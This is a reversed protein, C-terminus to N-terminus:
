KTAGTTSSKTTSPTAAPASTTPTPSSSTPSTPSPTPSAPAPAASGSSSSSGGSSSDGADDLVERLEEDLIQEERARESQLNRVRDLEEERVEWAQETIGVDARLVIGLLKDRVITFNRQAVHGVLDRAEGDYATLTTKYTAVKSAEADIKGRLDGVKLNVSSELQSFIQILRDETSRAQALIPIVHQAYARAGEGGQGESALQTERDLLDRFQARAVADNQYRADGLGVQARGIEIQQRLETAQDQALKLDHENADIETQFEQVAAPSRAVGRQADERLMRRLGNTVAHLQDIELQRQSLSQSVANWQKTGDYDRQAFDASTVPVAGVTAMLARRQTRVTEMEGSVSSSEESDLGQAIQVRARAVQNILGLARQEGALLEPFARVRNASTAVSTLKSILIESLKILKKCQNVDSIVAFAMPGDEAERAWRIAIAPLTDSTDLADMDQQSLKDYYTAVDKTSSLFNDVKVRMPDFQDRTQTYLQLAKDFAGARLLLDARLLTGDGAYSSNPDAISLVELAREARQVDGLRVYVWALEYLMTDFEPSDRNVKAYAESAQQYQEMEYFLRGIAMWALDIVHKHDPTDGPLLTVQRFAEIAPKYDTHSTMSTDIADDGVQPAPAPSNPDIKTSSPSAPLPQARKMAVLGMFYRAQARYLGNPGQGNPAPTTSLREVESFATQAETYNKRFYYAKGKAYQLVADVQSPPVQGLKQFVEDLSDYDGLRISVDVLRALAKSLYPAFRPESSHNVLERYDRRASLYEESAYYTEGRMWMADTYSPTNPFGEIIESYVLSARVYDKSQYLLDGNALRQEVTLLQTQASSVAAEVSPIEKDASQVDHQAAAAKDDAESAVARSPAFTTLAGLAVFTSLGAFRPTIHPRGFLRRGFRV